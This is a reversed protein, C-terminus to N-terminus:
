HGVVGNHMFEKTTTYLFYINIQAIRNQPILTLPPPTTTGFIYMIYV